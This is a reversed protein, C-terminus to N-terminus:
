YEVTRYGGEDMWDAWEVITAKGIKGFNARQRKPTYFSPRKFDRSQQDQYQHCFKELWEFGYGQFVTKWFNFLALEPALSKYLHAVEKRPELSYRLKEFDARAVRLESEYLDAKRRKEEFYAHQAEKKAIKKALENKKRGLKKVKDSHMWADIGAFGRQNEADFYGTGVKHISYPGPVWKGRNREIYKAAKDLKELQFQHFELWQKETKRVAFDQYVGSCIAMIAMEAQQKTFEKNRYVTQLAYFWFDLLMKSYKQNMGTPGTPKNEQYEAIRSDLWSTDTKPQKRRDQPMEGLNQSPAGGGLKEERREFYAGDVGETKGRERHFDERHSIFLDARTTEPKLIERHTDNDPFNKRRLLEPTSQAPNRLSELTEADFLFELKIWVEYPKKSGHFKRQVVGFKELRRMHNCVTRKDCRAYNAVKVNTTRLAPPDLPNQFEPPLTKRLENYNNVYDTLVAVFTPTLSEGIIGKKREVAIPGAATHRTHTATPCNNNHDAFSKMVRGIVDSSEIRPLM